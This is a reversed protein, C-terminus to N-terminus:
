KLADLLTNLKTTVYRRTTNGLNDIALVAINDTYTKRINNKDEMIKQLDEPSAVVIDTSKKDM